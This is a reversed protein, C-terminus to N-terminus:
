CHIICRHRGEATRFLCDTDGYEDFVTCMVSSRRRHCEFVLIDFNVLPGIKVVLQECVPGDWICVAGVVGKAEIDPRLVQRCFDCVIDTAVSALSLVNRAPDSVPCDIVGGVM